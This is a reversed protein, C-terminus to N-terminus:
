IREDNRSSLIMMNNMITLYNRSYNLYNNVIDNDRDTEDFFRNDNM